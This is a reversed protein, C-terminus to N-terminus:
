LEDFQKQLQKVKEKRPEQLFSALAEVDADGAVCYPKPNSNCFYMDKIARQLENTNRMIIIEYCDKFNELNEIVANEEKIVSQLKKAKELQEETM